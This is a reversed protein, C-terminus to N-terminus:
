ESDDDSDGSWPEDDSEEVMDSNDEDINLNQHHQNTEAEGGPSDLIITDDDSEREADHFLNEPM